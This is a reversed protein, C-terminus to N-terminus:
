WKLPILLMGWPSPCRAGMHMVFWPICIFRCLIPLIDILLDNILLELSTLITLKGWFSSKVTKVFIKPMCSWFECYVHCGSYMLSFIMSWFKYPICSHKTLKGRHHSLKTWSNGKWILFFWLCAYGFNLSLVLTVLM